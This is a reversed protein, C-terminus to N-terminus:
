LCGDDWLYDLEDLWAKFDTDNTSLCDNQGRLRLFVISTGLGLSTPVPGSLENDALNLKELRSLSGIETPISGTLQNDNLYLNLLDDLNGLETPIFGTLKNQSLALNQLTHKVPPLDIEPQYWYFLSGVEVPISGTLQNNTLDLNQLQTLNGIEVPISGTLQNNALELNQLQTLNGIETPISGTLQNNTLDLRQLSRLNGIETPISGTLQNDQLLLRQLSSLNGIGTPLPGTLQNSHLSLLRLNTLDGIEGPLSGLLYQSGLRLEVVGGQDCVVGSWRCVDPTSLWSVFFASNNIRWSEGDTAGHLAVLALCELEPVSNHACMLDPNMARKTARQLFAAMQGRNVYDDPCFRDNTPPNCGRTVEATGLKDIDAEFTSGDDDVFLDGGGDDVYAKARVLFAAMQGRTVLDDPCVRDNAPPNCGYTVGSTALKDIDAEFLHGDDDVFLDGGGNDEYSMARVLFAAMQGRTVLDDPCFRDNAPPNCGTTIGTAALWWIDDHFTHGDPVDIFQNSALATSTTSLLFFAVVAVILLSKSRM